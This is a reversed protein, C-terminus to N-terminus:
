VVSKRDRSNKSYQKDYKKYWIIPVIKSIHSTVGELLLRSEVSLGVDEMSNNHRLSDPTTSLKDRRSLAISRFGELDLAQNTSYAKVCVRELASRQLLVSLDTQIGLCLTSLM